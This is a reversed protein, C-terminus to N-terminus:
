MVNGCFKVRVRFVDRVIFDFWLPYFLFSVYGKNELEVPDKPQIKHLLPKGRPLVSAPASAVRSDIFVGHAQFCAYVGMIIIIYM